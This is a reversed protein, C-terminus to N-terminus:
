DAFNVHDMASPEVQHRYGAVIRRILDFARSSSFRRGGTSAGAACSRMMRQRDATEWLDRTYRDAQLKLGYWSEM